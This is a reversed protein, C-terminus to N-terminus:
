RSSEWTEPSDIPAVIYGVVKIKEKLRGLWQDPARLAPVHKALPKGRKTIM